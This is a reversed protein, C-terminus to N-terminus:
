QIDGNKENFLNKMLNAGIEQSDKAECIVVPTINKYIIAEIFPIAQPYYYRSSQEVDFLGLQISDKLDDFKRHGDEGKNNVGVPYMHIHSNELSSRGLTKEVKDFVEIINETDILSGGERAHLHALDLCPEAYQVESCIDLVENLAGLEGKKGAIEPYIKIKDKPLEKELFKLERIIAKVGNRRYDHSEGPFHGPHFIVRSSDLLDALWFSRIVRERSRKVIDKNASALTIYYPAHVSIGIGSKQGAEKYKIAQEEPMKVGYTNQLEIWDLNLERLWDFIFLRNQSFKSSFFNPPFGAVGFSPSNKNM